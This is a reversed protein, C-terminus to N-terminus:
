IRRGQAAEKAAKVNAEVKTWAAQATKLQEADLGLAQLV